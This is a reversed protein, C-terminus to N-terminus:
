RGLSKLTRKLEDVSKQLAQLNDGSLTVEYGCDCKIISGPPLDRLYKRIKRHCMPCTLILVANWRTDFELDIKPSEDTMDKEGDEFSGSSEKAVRLVLRKAESIVLLGQDDDTLAMSSLDHVAELVITTVDRQSLIHQQQLTKMLKNVLILTALGTADVDSDTRVYPKV